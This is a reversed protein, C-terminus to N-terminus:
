TIVFPSNEGKAADNADISLLITGLEVYASVDIHDKEQFQITSNATSAFGGVCQHRSCCPAV